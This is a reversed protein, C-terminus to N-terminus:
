GIRLQWPGGRAYLLVQRIGNVTRVNFSAGTVLPRGTFPAPLVIVTAARRDAPGHGRVLVTGRFPDSTFGDLVGATAMPYATSIRRVREPTALAGWRGHEKWVWLAGGVALADQHAYHPALLRADDSPDNGFEGVWLPLGLAQADGVAAAYDSDSSQLQGAQGQLVTSDATFVGTYVHPAYVVNPYSSYTSWPAVFTRAGTVNRTGAPEVFFLQRFRPVAAVVADVLKAHFAMLETGDMVLPAYGPQPENMLEYGAVAADDAFRRALWTVVAAYHEQLGVGDPAPLDSWFRQAAEQVPPELERTGGPACAPTLHVSAWAPAGDGGDAASSGPPCVTGAPAFVYKSWADQHLDIVVRVGRARAWDVVQAIRAVPVADLHGPAPELLSWSVPLRIVDFGLGAIQDLDSECLPVATTVASDAPCRGDAYEQPGTPYPPTLGKTWYDVLGNVNVGRLVVSRGSEDVVQPLGASGAVAGVHLFQLAPPPTAAHAPVALTALLCGLLALRKM